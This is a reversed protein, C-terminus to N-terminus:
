LLDDQLVKRGGLANRFSWAALALYLAVVILGLQAYWASFDSTLPWNTIEATVLSMLAGPLVGFRIMVWLELGCFGGFIAAATANSAAATFVAILAIVAAAALWTNRFVVRFLLLVFLASMAIAIISFPTTQLGRALGPGNLTVITYPSLSLAADREWVLWLSARGLAGAVSGLAVGALVHGAVLPDRVEGALLRNWSILSQPLRRRLYPEAAMYLVWVVGAVLLSYAVADFIHQYEILLPVHHMQIFLGLSFCVV